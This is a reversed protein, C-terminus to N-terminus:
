DCSSLEGFVTRIIDVAFSDVVKYCIEKGSREGQIIGVDRMKSLHQSLGSQTLGMKEQIDGVRCKSLYLGRLIYLRDPHSLVKIVAARREIEKRTM